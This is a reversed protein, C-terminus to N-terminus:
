ALVARSGRLPELLLVMLIGLFVQLLSLLDIVLLFQVLM